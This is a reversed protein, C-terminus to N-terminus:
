MTTKLIRYRKKFSNYDEMFVELEENSEADNLIDQTTEINERLAELNQILTSYEELDGTVNEWLDEFMNQLRQKSM